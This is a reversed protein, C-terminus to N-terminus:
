PGTAEADGETPAAPSPDASEAPRSESGRAEHRNEAGREDAGREDDSGGCAGLGVLLLLAGTWARRM